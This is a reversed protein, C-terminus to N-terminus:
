QPSREEEIVRGVRAPCVGFESRRILAAFLIHTTLCRLVSKFITRLRNASNGSLKFVELAAPLGPLQIQERGEDVAAAEKPVQKHGEQRVVQAAPLGHQYRHPDCAQPQDDDPTGAAQHQDPHPGQDSAEPAVGGDVDAEVEYSFSNLVPAPLLM